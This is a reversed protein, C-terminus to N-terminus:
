HLEQVHLTSDKGDEEMEEILNAILQKANATADYAGHYYQLITDPVGESARRYDDYYAMLSDLEKGFNGFLELLKDLRLVRGDKM